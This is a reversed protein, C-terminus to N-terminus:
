TTSWDRVTNNIATVLEADLRVGRRVRAAAEELPLALNHLRGTIAVSIGIGRIAELIKAEQEPTMTDESEQQRAIHAGDFNNVDVTEGELTAGSFQWGDLGGFPASPSGSNWGGVVYGGFTPALSDQWRGNWAGAIPYRALWLPLDAYDRTNGMISQWAGPSTYIGPSYGRDRIARVHEPLVRGTEGGSAEVDLYIRFFYSPAYHLADLYDLAPVVMRPPWIYAGFRRIGGIHAAELQGDVFVNRGDGVGGGGWLQCVFVEVGHRERIRKWWGPDRSLDVGGPEIDGQYESLDIGRLITM